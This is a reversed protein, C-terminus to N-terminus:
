EGAPIGKYVPWLRLAHNVVARRWAVAVAAKSLIVTQPRSRPKWRRPVARRLGAPTMTLRHERQIEEVLAELSGKEHFM